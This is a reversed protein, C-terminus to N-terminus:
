SQRIRAATVGALTGGARAGPTAPPALPAGGDGRFRDIMIEYLVGDSWSKAAPSVWVASKVAAPPWPSIM